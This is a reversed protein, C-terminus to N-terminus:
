QDVDHHESQEADPIWDPSHYTLIPLANTAATAATTQFKKPLRYRAKRCEASPLLRAFLSLAIFLM